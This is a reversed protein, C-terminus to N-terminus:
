APIGYFDLLLLHDKDPFLPYRPGGDPCISEQDKNTQSGRYLRSHATGARPLCCPIAYCMM